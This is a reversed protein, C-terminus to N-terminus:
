RPRRPGQNASRNCSRAERLSARTGRHPIPGPRQRHRARAARSWGGVRVGPDTRPLRGGHPEVGVYGRSEGDALIAAISARLSERRMAWTTRPWRFRRPVLAVIRELITTLLILAGLMLGLYFSIGHDRGARSIETQAAILDDLGLLAGFTLISFAGVMVVVTLIKNSREHEQKAAEPSRFPSVLKRIAWCRGCPLIPRRCPEDLHTRYERLLRTAQRSEETTLAEAGVHQAGARQAEIRDALGRVRKADPPRWMVNSKRRLSERLRSWARGVRAGAGVVVTMHGGEVLPWLTPLPDSMAPRVQCM